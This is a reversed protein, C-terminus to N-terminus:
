RSQNVGDAVREPLLKLNSDAFSGRKSCGDVIASRFRPARTKSSLELAGADNEELVERVNRRLAEVDVTRPAPKKSPAAPSVLADGQLRPRLIELQTRLAVIEDLMDSVGAEAAAM